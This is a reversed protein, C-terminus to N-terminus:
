KGLGNVGGENYKVQSMNTTSLQKIHDGQILNKETLQHIKKMLQYVHNQYSTAAMALNELTSSIDGTQVMSKTIHYGRHGEHINQTLKLNHYEDM